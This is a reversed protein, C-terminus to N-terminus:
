SKAPRVINRGPSQRCLHTEVELNGEQTRELRHAAPISRGMTNENGLAFNTHTRCVATM